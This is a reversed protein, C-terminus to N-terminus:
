PFVQSRRKVPFPTRFRLEPFPTRPVTNSSRHELDYRSTKQDFLSQIFSPHVTFDPSVPGHRDVASVSWAPQRRLRDTSPRHM